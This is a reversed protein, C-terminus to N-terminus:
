NINWKDNVQQYLMKIWVGNVVDRYFFFSHPFLAKPFARPFISFHIFCGMKKNTQKNTKSYIIKSMRLMFYCFIFFTIKHAGFPSFAFDFHDNNQRFSADNFNINQLGFM